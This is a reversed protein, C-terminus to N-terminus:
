SPRGSWKRLSTTWSSRAVDSFVSARSEGSATSIVDSALFVPQNLLHRTHPNPSLRRQRLHELNGRQNPTARTRTHEEDSWMRPRHGLNAWEAESLGLGHVLYDLLEGWERDGWTTPSKGFYGEEMARNM